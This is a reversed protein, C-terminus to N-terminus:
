DTSQKAPSRGPQTTGPSIKEVTSVNAKRYKRRTDRIVYFGYGFLLIAAIFFGVAFALLENISRVASIWAGFALASVTLSLTALSVLLWALLVGLRYKRLGKDPLKGYFTGWLRYLVYCQRLAAGALPVALLSFPYPLLVSTAAVSGTFISLLLQAKEMDRRISLSKKIETSLISDIQPSAIESDEIAALEGKMRNMQQSLDFIQKQVDPIANEYYARKAELPLRETLDKQAERIQEETKTKELALKGHLEEIKKTDQELQQKLGYQSVMDFLLKYERKQQFYLYFGFVSIPFAMINM